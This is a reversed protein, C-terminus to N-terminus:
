DGKLLMRHEAPKASRDGFDGALMLRGSNEADAHRIAKRFVAAGMSIQQALVSKVNVTHAVANSYKAL